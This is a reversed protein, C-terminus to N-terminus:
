IRVMLVTAIMMAAMAVVMFVLRIPSGLLLRQLGFKRGKLLLTMAYEPRGSARLRPAHPRSLVPRSTGIDQIQNM